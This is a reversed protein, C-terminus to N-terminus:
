VAGALDLTTSEGILGCADARCQRCHSLQSVFVSCQERIQQHLMAPVPSLHAFDARPILPMINMASVHLKKLTQALPLMEQENIGPILVSNVKVRIGAETAQKVGELQNERLLVAAEKGRLTVGMYQVYSYIQAGIDEDLANITVTLSNLGIRVLDDMYESLLLGNTSLCLSFRPFESRVMKLTKLTASNALPDGPGAIGVVRIRSDRVAVHRVSELAEEPTIIKTTVGPHNENACDHKRTCYKCKINCRPAIPLHIRGVSCHSDVDFCPHGYQNDQYNDNKM